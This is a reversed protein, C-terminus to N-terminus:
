LDLIMQDFDKAGGNKGFLRQLLRQRINTVNQPSSDTLSAIESPQFRLKILICINREKDSLNGRQYLNEFFNPSNQMMLEMIDEWDEHTASKASAAKRHLHYVTEANTLMQKKHSQTNDFKANLERIIDMYRHAKHRHYTFFVFIATILMVIISGFVILRHHFTSREVRKDYDAQIKAVEVTKEANSLNHYVANMRSSLDYAIRYNGTTNFHDILRQYAPILIDTNFTNTAEYWLDVAKEKDGEMKHLDGLLLTAYENPLIRLASDLYKHARQKNGSYFEVAGLSTLVNTKAAPQLHNLLPKCENIYKRFNGNDGMVRYVM